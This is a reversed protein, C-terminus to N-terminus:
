VNKDEAATPKRGKRAGLLWYFIFGVFPVSAVMVWLIKTGLTAFEKEAANVVSWVTILFFPICALLFIGVTELDM